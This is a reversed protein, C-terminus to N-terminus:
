FIVDVVSAYCQHKRHINCNYIEHEKNANADQGNQNRNNDLIQMKTSFTFRESCHRTPYTSVTAYM